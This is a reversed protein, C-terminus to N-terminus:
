SSIPDSANLANEYDKILTEILTPKEMDKDQDLKM